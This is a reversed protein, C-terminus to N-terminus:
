MINLALRGPVVIVVRPHIPIVVIGALNIIIILSQCLLIPLRVRVALIIMVIIIVVGASYTIIGISRIIM